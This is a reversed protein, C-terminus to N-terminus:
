DPLNFRWIQMAPEGTRRAGRNSYFYVHRGDPTVAPRTDHSGNVTLQTVKGGDIDMMWIDFNREGEENVAQNSAFVIRKGDPMWVPYADVHDGATLQTPSGGDQDMIWIKEYGNTDPAVYALQKSDPAWSPSHGVRMQTPLSGDATCIWIQPQDLERLWRTCAMKAGDPSVAPQTDIIASPSDTIKTFGGRRKAPIRWINYRGKSLRDSSFYFWEGDPSAHVELDQQSADTRRTRAVQDGQQEWLNFYLDEEPQVAISYIIAKSDPLVGIRNYHRRVLDLQFDTIKTAGGVVPEREIDGVQSLVKSEVIQMGGPMPKMEVVPTYVFRIPDLAAELRGSLATAYDLQMSFPQDSGPPLKEDSKARYGEKLVEVLFTDWSQDAGQRSFTFEHRLPTTGIDKGNVKVAAGDVNCTIDVPLRHRVRALSVSVTPNKRLTEYDLSRAVTAHDKLSFTATPTSWDATSSERVFRVMGKAPTTLTQKRDISVDAGSPESVFSVDLGAMLRPLRFLLDWVEKKPMAKAEAKSLRREQAEHEPLSVRITHSPYESDNWKLRETYPTRKVPGRDLTVAAGSPDSSVRVTRTVCGCFFCSLAAGLMLRQTRRVGKRSFRRLLPVANM